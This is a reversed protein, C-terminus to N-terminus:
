KYYNIADPVSTIVRNKLDPNRLIYKKLFKVNIDKEKEWLLKFGKSNFDTKEPKWQFLLILATYGNNDVKGGLRQVLEVAWDHNLLQPNHCCLKMLM